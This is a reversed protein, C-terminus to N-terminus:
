NLRLIKGDVIKGTVNKQAAGFVVVCGFLEAMERAIRVASNLRDNNSVHITACCDIHQIYRNRGGRCFVTVRVGNKLFSVDGWPDILDWTSKTQYPILCNHGFCRGNRYRTKVERPGGDFIGIKNIRRVVEARSINM